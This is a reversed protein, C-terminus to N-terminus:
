YTVNSVTPFTFEGGAVSLQSIAWTNTSNLDLHGGPLITTANTQLVFLTPSYFVNPPPPSGAVKPFDDIAYLVVSPENISYAGSIPVTWRSEFFDFNFGGVAGGTSSVLSGSATSTTSAVPFPGASTVVPTAQAQDEAAGGNAGLTSM